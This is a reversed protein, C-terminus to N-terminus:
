EVLKDDRSAQIYNLCMEDRNLLAEAARWTSMIDPDTPDIIAADLGAGMLLALFTRNLLRRSPLGFSVNSVGATIHVDPHAHRVARVAAICLPGAEGAASVTLVVPDVFIDDASIGKALAADILQKAVGERDGESDPMGEDSLCLAIIRAKAQVALDLVRDMKAAEATVSNLIPPAGEYVDLGAALADPNPSDICLPLETVERATRILWQMDAVEDEAKRGANCDLYDAGADAQQRALDKISDADRARLAEGVSKNTANLREGIVIM